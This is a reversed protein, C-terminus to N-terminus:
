TEDKPPKLFPGTVVKKCHITALRLMLENLEDSRPKEYVLNTLLAHGPNSGDPDDAVVEIGDARLDGVSLVAVHYGHKSPGQGADAVSNFFKARYVSIGDVDDERPKFASASLGRKDYWPQAIPIRRYILEDDSIAENPDM